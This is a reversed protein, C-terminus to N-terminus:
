QVNYQAAVTAGSCTVNASACSFAGARSLSVTANSWLGPGLTVSGLDLDQLKTLLLPKIPSASVSATVTAARAQAGAAAIALAAFAHAIIRSAFRLRAAGRPRHARPVVPITSKRDLMNTM